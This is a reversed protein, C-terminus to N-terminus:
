RYGYKSRKIDRKPNLIFVNYANELQLYEVLSALLADILDVDVQWIGGDNDRYTLLQFRLLFLLCFLTILTSQLKKKPRRAIPIFGNSAIYM